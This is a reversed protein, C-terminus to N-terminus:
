KKRRAYCEKRVMVRRTAEKRNFPYKEAYRDPVYKPCALVVYSEIPESYYGHPLIDNRIADWGEVPKQVNKESWSCGGCANECVECLTFPTYEPVICDKWNVM